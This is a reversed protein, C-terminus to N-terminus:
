ARRVPYSFMAHCRRHHSKAPRRLGAKRSNKKSSKRTKRPLHSLHLKGHSGELGSRCSSRSSRKGKRSKKHGSRRTRRRQPLHSPHLKGHSEELSSISSDIGDQKNKLGRGQRKEISSNEAQGDHGAAGRRSSRVGNQKRRRRPSRNASSSQQRRSERSNRGWPSRSRPIRSNRGPPSRSRSMRRNYANRYRWLQQYPYALMAHCKSRPKGERGGRESSKRSRRRKRTHGRHKNSTMKQQDNTNTDEPCAM